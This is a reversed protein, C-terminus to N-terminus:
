GRIISSHYERLKNRTALALNNCERNAVHNVGWTKQMFGFKYQKDFKNATGLHFPQERNYGEAKEGENQHRSSATRAGANRLLDTGYGTQSPARM